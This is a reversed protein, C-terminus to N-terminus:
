SPWTFTTLRDLSRRLDDRHVSDQHRFAWRMELIEGVIRSILTAIQPIGSVEISWGKPEFHTFQNRMGDHFRQLWDLEADSIKVGASNSCDGASHPKRVAKLLDPLAMLYTKPRKANPNTRSQEIYELWEGANKKTIAGLPAATTTLHCVCAGQLASHLALVVWKWAQPDEDVVGAARIVHRISGAVDEVEDTCIWNDAM